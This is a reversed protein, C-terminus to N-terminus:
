VLIQIKERMLKQRISMIILIGILVKNEIIPQEKQLNMLINKQNVGSFIIGNVDRYELWASNGNDMWKPDPNSKTKHRKVESPKSSDPQESSLAEGPTEIQNQKGKQPKQVESFYRKM